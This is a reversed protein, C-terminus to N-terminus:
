PSLAFVPKAPPGRVPTVDRDLLSPRVVVPTSSIPARAPRASWRHLLLDLPRLALHQAVAWVFAEGRSLACWSVLTVAAHIALMSSGMGMGMADGTASAMSVTHVGVQGLILLGLLQVSTLRVGALAWVLAGSVLFVVVVSALEAQGGALVHAGFASAVCALSASM